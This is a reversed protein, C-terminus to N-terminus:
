GAPPQMLNIRMGGPLLMDGPQMGAPCPGQWAAELAVEHVGNLEPGAAGTVSSTATLRYNRGLDGTVTGHTATRGGRGMDCASAFDWGGGPHPTVKAPGCAGRGAHQGWWTFRREVSKDLCIRSVQTRGEASVRQEWLGPTRAPLAAPAAAESAPPAGPAAPPKPTGAPKGHCAALALPAVALVLVKRM